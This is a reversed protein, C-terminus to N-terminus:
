ILDLQRLMPELQARYKRWRGVSNDYIPQRVQWHSATTVVRETRHFDLCGPEWDLGLFGILRRAEGDLDAVLREYNVEIMRPGLVRAWHVGLRGVDRCRAGCDALDYSFHMLGPSFLQFFCSLGIDRPDRSCYVIRAGPFLTAILGLQLINDPMKDIVRDRGAAMRRLRQLHAAALRSASAADAFRATVGRQRGGALTTAIRDIDHLEGAGHVRSHSACIQEVLSTGSRPMGVVFVALEAAEAGAVPEALAAADYTEILLDVWGAFAAADFRDADDPWSARVLLNAEAYVAFAEEEREQTELLKGLAFGAAIRDQVRRDPTRFLAELRRREGADVSTSPRGLAIHRFGGAHGPDIRRVEAFCAEAEDFRGLLRLAWGLGAWADPQRPDLATARRFHSAAADCLRMEMLAEAAAMHHRLSGPTLAAGREFAAVAEEARGCRGLLRGLQHHAEAHDPARALVDRWAAIAEEDRGLGTLAVALNIRAPLLGPVLRVAERCIPLAADFRGLDNLVRGLNSLASASAPQLALAREYCAIAGEPDGALRLANGLNLHADAFDPMSRLARRILRAGREPHGQTTALVGLM